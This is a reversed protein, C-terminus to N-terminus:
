LKVKPFLTTAAKQQITDSFERPLVITFTSGQGMTSNVYINGGHKQIIGYSISLGMGTGEGVAKTTFFPEFIRKQVESSMGKGTDTVEVQVEAEKHSTALTITGEGEISQIANTLLNMFVQNLSAPYCDIKPFAEEYQRIIHIRHKTQNGLLVLTSDLGEHLNALNRETEDLRSFNRLAKVIQATRAAGNEISYLTQWIGNKNEEYYLEQKSRNIIALRDALETANTTTELAEYHGLMGYLEQLSQKLNAVGAYVFNIPNNIEHAIGATLQGLSAMKEAQILQLQTTQLEKITSSMVDNMSQMEEAYSRMEEESTKLDQYAKQLQFEAERQDTIDHATGVIQSVQGSQDYQFPVDRTRLLRYEGEPNKIRFELSYMNEANLQALYAQLIPQDEPHVMSLLWTAGKEQLQEASCGLLALLSQNAYVLTQMPLDFVFLFDPTANAVSEIFHRAQQVEQQTTVKETTDQIFSVVAEVGGLEDCIPFIFKDQYLRVRQSEWQNELQNLDLCQDTLIVTEGAYARQYDLNVGNVLCFPDTLPNYLGLGYDKSPLGLYRRRAENMRLAFGHRDFIQIPMPSNEFLANILRNAERLEEEARKRESIDVFTVVLGDGLPVAVIHFWIQLGEHGYFHEQDLTKQKEVVQVYQEFLGGARNGPMEELLRKNLLYNAKRDVLTEAARNVLQWEFDQLHGKADRISRFVMIGSLSSDLVAQLQATAEQLAEERTKRETMDTATGSLKVVKGQDNKHVRGIAQIWRIQGESLILRTDHQYDLGLQLANTTDKVLIARDEPHLMSLLEEVGPVRSGTPLQHLTYMQESWNIKGSLLDVEWSGTRAMQQAEQLDRESKQLQAENGKRATIDRSCAQVHRLAGTADYHLQVRTELWRYTRDKHQMRYEVGEQSGALSRVHSAAVQEWDDPHIMELSSEGILEQPTYGLLEEVSASLFVFRGDPDFLTILDRTNESLLRYMAESELLQAQTQQLQAIQQAQDNLFHKILKQLPRFLLVGLLTLVVVTAWTTQWLLAELRLLKRNAEDMYLRCIQQYRELLKPALRGIHTVAALGSDQAQSINVNRRLRHLDLVMEKRQPDLQDYLKQCAPSNEGSLLVRSSYSEHGRLRLAQYEDEWHNLDRMLQNEQRKRTLSDPAYYLALADKALQQSYMAQYGSYRVLESDFIRQQIKQEALTLNLVALLILIGGAVLFSFQLRRSLQTAEKM